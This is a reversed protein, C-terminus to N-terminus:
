NICEGQVEGKVRQPPNEKAQFAAGNKRPVGSYRHAMAGDRPKASPTPLVGRKLCVECPLRCMYQGSIGVCRRCSRVFSFHGVRILMYTM